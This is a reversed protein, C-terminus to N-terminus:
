IAIYLCYIISIGNNILQYSNSNLKLAIKVNFQESINVVNYLFFLVNKKQFYTEVHLDQFSILCIYSAQM